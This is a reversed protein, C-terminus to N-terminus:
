TQMFRLSFKEALKDIVVKFHNNKLSFIEYVGTLPKTRLAIHEKLLRQM